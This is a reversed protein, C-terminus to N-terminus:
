RLADSKYRVTVPNVDSLMHMNPLQRQARTWFIKKAKHSSGTQSVSLRVTRIYGDMCTYAVTLARELWGVAPRQRGFLKAQMQM